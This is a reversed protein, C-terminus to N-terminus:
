RSRPKPDLLRVPQAKDAPPPQAKELRSRPMSAQLEPAEDAFDCKVCSRNQPTGDLMEVVLTDQAGCEPCIAGAIFRRAM